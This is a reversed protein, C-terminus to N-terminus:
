REIDAILVTADDHPRRHRTMVARCVDAAAVGKYQSLDIRPSVGDSFLILRDGPVVRAEFVRMRRLSAGLIGPSPVWPVHTGASILEVNGVGCGELRDDRLVCIMAAAGRTGRLRVHVHEVVAGVGSGLPAEGLAALAVEAAEAARDGHGLADILAFVGCDGTQHVFVADGSVREGEKPLILHEM